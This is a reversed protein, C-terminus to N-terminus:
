EGMLVQSSREPQTSVMAAIAFHDAHPVDASSDIHQPRMAVPRERIELNREGQPWDHTLLIYVARYDGSRNRPSWAFLLRQIAQRAAPPKEFGPRM